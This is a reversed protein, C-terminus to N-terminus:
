TGVVEKEKGAIGDRIKLRPPNLWTKDAVLALLHEPIACFHSAMNPNSSEAYTHMLAELAPTRGIDFKCDIYPKSETCKFLHQQAIPSSCNKRIEEPLLAGIRVQNQLM